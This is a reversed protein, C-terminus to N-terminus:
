SCSYSVGLQFPTCLCDHYTVRFITGSGIDTQHSVYTIQLTSENITGQTGSKLMHVQIPLTFTIEQSIGKFVYQNAKPNAKVTLNLKFPITERLPPPSHELLLNTLAIVM